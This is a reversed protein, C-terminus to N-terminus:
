DQEIVDREAVLGQQEFVDGVEALIEDVGGLDFVADVASGL